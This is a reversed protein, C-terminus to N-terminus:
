GFTRFTLNVRPERVTKRRPLSHQWFRQTTGSMMLLSGHSLMIRVRADPKLRHRMLFEREAGLSVSAIIPTCGLEAEDDAHWGVTDSGDRYYNLLVSNFSKGVVHEVRQRVDLLTRTWPLPDMRIGSWKYARGADGFWQQLRPVDHEVGFLRIRDARWPTEDILKRLLTFGESDTFFGRLISINADAAEIREWVTAQSFLDRQMQGM